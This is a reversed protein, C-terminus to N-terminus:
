VSNVVTQNSHPTGVRAAAAPGSIAGQREIPRQQGKLNRKHKNNEGAVCKHQWYHAPRERCRQFIFLVCNSAFQELRIGLYSNWRSCSVGSSVGSLFLYHFNEFKQTSVQIQQQHSNFSVVCVSHSHADQQLWFAHTCGVSINLLIALVVDTSISLIQPL